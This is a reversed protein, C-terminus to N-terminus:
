RDNSERAITESVLQYTLNSNISPILRYGKKRSLQTLLSLYDKNDCYEEITSRKLLEIFLTNSNLIKIDPINSKENEIIIINDPLKIFKTDQNQKLNVQYKNNDFPLTNEIIVNQDCHTINIDDIYAKVPANNSYALLSESDIMLSDDCIVKEGHVHFHLALTTKGSHKNGVFAVLKDSKNTTCCSCHLSYLNYKVLLFYIHKILKVIITQEIPRKDTDIYIYILDNEADTLVYSTDYSEFLFSNAKRVYEYTDPTTKVNYKKLLEVSVEYDVEYILINYKKQDLSFYDIQFKTLLIDLIITRNTLVEIIINNINIKM